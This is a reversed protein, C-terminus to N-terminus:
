SEDAVGARLTEVQKQNSLALRGHREERRWRETDRATEGVPRIIGTRRLPGSKGPAVKEIEDLSVKSGRKLVRAGIDIDRRVEYMAAKGM